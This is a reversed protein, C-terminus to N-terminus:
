DQGVLHHDQHRISCPACSAGVARVRTIAGRIPARINEGLEPWRPALLPSLLIEIRAPTYHLESLSEYDLWSLFSLQAARAAMNAGMLHNLRRSLRTAGPQRSDAKSRGPSHVHLLHVGTVQAGPLHLRCALRVVKPARRPWRWTVSISPFISVHNSHGSPIRAPQCTSQPKCVIDRRTTNAIRRFRPCLGFMGPTSRMAILRQIACKLSAVRLRWRRAPGVEPAGLLM